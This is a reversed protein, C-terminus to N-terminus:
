IGQILIEAARSVDGRANILATKVRDEPFGMVVLSEIEAQEPVYQPQQPPRRVQPRGQPTPGARFRAMQAHILRQEEEDMKIKQQIQLTAGIPDKVLESDSFSRIRGDWNFLVLGIVFGLTTSKPNGQVLSALFMYTMCKESLSFKSFIHLKRKPSCYAIFVPTYSAMLAIPLTFGLGLSWLSIIVASTIINRALLKESGIIREVSAYKYTLYGFPVFEHSGKLLLNSFIGLLREKNNGLQFGVLSSLGIAILISKTVPAGELM